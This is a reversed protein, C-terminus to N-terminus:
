KKSNRLDLRRRLYFFMGLSVIAIGILGSTITLARYEARILGYESGFYYIVALYSLLFVFVAVSSRFPFQNPQDVYRRANFMMLVGLVVLGFLLFYPPLLQIVSIKLAWYLIAFTPTAVIAYGLSVKTLWIFSNKLKSM